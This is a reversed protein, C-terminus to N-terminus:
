HAHFEPNQQGRQYIEHNSEHVAARLADVSDSTANRFYNLAIQEAAMQSALEGAAHAGMGDAVIFLHGRQWYREKNKALLSVHNSIFLAM